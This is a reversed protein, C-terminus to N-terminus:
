KINCYTAKKRLLSVFFIRQRTLVLRKEDTPNKLSGNRFRTREMISKTLTKTMFPKNNGRIYEKKNSCSSEIRELM